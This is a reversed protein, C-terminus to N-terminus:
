PPEWGFAEKLAAQEERRVDAILQDHEQKEQAAKRCKPYHKKFDAYTDKPPRLGFYVECFNCKVWRKGKEDEYKPFTFTSGDVICFEICSSPSM